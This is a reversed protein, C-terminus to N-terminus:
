RSPVCTTKPSTISPMSTMSVMPFRSVFLFDCAGNCCTVMAAQPSTTSPLSTENEDFSPSGVLCAANPKELRIAPLVETGAAENFEGNPVEEAVLGLEEKPVDVGNLEPPEVVLEVVADKAAGVVLAEGEEWVVINLKPPEFTAPVFGVLECNAKPTEPDPTWEEVELGLVALEGEGNPNPLVGAAGDGKVKPPDVLLHLLALSFGQQRFISVALYKPFLLAAWFVESQTEM